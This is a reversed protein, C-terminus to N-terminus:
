CKQSRFRGKVEDNTLSKLYDGIKRVHLMVGIVYVLHKDCMRYTKALKTREKM